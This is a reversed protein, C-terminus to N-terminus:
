SPVFVELNQYLIFAGMVLLFAAFGRQLAGSPVYQSARTGALTGLSAITILAALLGWAIPVQGLYGMFAAAANLVITALSTGIADRMPMELLLVLAPVILFGGGVGVLGTLLGVAIAALVLTAVTRGRRGRTRAETEQSARRPAAMSVAAGIMVTAFIVLQLSGPIHVALRAGAFAAAMTLAGFALATTLHVHGARWHAVAGVASSIGVIALSMAIAQKPEMGLGYVLIPVTLIAGGGGLLGPVVGILFALAIVLPGLM